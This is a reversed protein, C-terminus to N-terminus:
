SDITMLSNIWDRVLRFHNSSWDFDGVVCGGVDGCLLPAGSFTMQDSWQM